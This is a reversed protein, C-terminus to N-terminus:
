CGAGFNEKIESREMLVWQDTLFGGASIALCIVNHARQLISFRTFVWLRCKKYSTVGYKEFKSPDTYVDPFIWSVCYSNFGSLEM